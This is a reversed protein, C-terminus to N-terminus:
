DLHCLEKTRASAAEADSPALDSCCFSFKLMGLAFRPSIASCLNCATKESILSKCWPSSPNHDPVSGHCFM